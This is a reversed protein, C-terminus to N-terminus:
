NTEIIKCQDNNVTIINKYKNAIQKLYDKKEDAHPIVVGDIINLATFSTTNTLNTDFDLATEITKSLIIAGASSGIYIKDNALFEKIKDDFSAEYIKALLYFTNGGCVYLIDYNSIDINKITDIIDINKLGAQRLGDIDWDVYQQNTEPISATKIFLVKNNEIPKRLISKVKNIISLNSLGNSVLILKSM